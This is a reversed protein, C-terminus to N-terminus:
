IKSEYSSLYIEEMGGQKRRRRLRFDLIRDAGL